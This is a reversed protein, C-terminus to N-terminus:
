DGAQSTVLEGDEQGLTREVVGVAHGVFHDVAQSFEGLSLLPGNGSRYTDCNLFLGPRGVFEFLEQFAGVFQHILDLLLTPVAKENLGISGLVV